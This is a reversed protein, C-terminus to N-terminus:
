HEVVRWWVTHAGSTSASEASAIRAEGVVPAGAPRSQAHSQSQSQALPTALPSSSSAPPPPPPRQLPQLPIHRLVVEVEVQEDVGRRGLSLHEVVDRTETLGSRRPLSLSHFDDDAAAAATPVGVVRPTASRATRAGFRTGLSGGRTATPTQPGPASDSEVLLGLLDIDDEVATTTAAAAAVAAVAAGPDVSLRADKELSRRDNKRFSLRGQKLKSTVMHGAHHSVRRRGSKNPDAQHHTQIHLALDDEYPFAEKCGKFRCVYRITQQHEEDLHAQWRAIDGFHIKRNRCDGWLCPYVGSDDRHGHMKDCHEILTDFDHLEASCQWFGCKYVPFGLMDDGSEVEAADQVTGVHEYYDLNDPDLRRLEQSRADDIELIEAAENPNYYRPALRDSRTVEVNFVTYLLRDTVPTPVKAESSDARCPQGKAATPVISLPPNLKAYQEVVPLVENTDDIRPHVRLQDAPQAAHPLDHLPRSSPTAPSHLSPVTTFNSESPASAAAPEPNAVNVRSDPHDNSNVRVSRPRQTHNVAIDSHRTADPRQESQVQGPINSRTTTSRFDETGGRAPGIVAPQPGAHALDSSKVAQQGAASRNVVGPDLTLHEERADRHSSKLARSIRPHVVIPNQAVPQGPIPPDLHNFNTRRIDKALLYRYRSMPDNLRAGPLRGAALLISQALVSVTKRQSTNKHRSGSSSPRSVNHSSSVPFHHVQAQPSMTAHAPTTPQSNGQLSLTPLPQLPPWSQRTDNALRTGSRDGKQLLHHLSTELGRQTSLHNAVRMDLTPSQYARDNERTINNQMVPGNSRSGVPDRSVPSWRGLPPPRANQQTDFNHSSPVIPSEGNAMPMQRASHSQQVDRHHMRSMDNRSPEKSIPMEATACPIVPPNGFSHNEEGLRTAKDPRGVTGTENKWKASAPETGPVHQGTMGRVEKPRHDLKRSKNFTPPSHIERRAERDQLGHPEGTDHHRKKPQSPLPETQIVHARKSSALSGSVQADGSPRATDARSRDPAPRALDHVGKGHKTPMQLNYTRDCFFKWELEPIRPLHRQLDAVVSELSLDRRSTYKLVTRAIRAAREATLVSRFGTTGPQQQQQQQQVTMSDQKFQVPHSTSEYAPLNM